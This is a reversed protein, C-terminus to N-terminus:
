LLLVSERQFVQKGFYVHERRSEGQALCHMCQLRSTAPLDEQVRISEAPQRSWRVRAEENQGGKVGVRQRWRGSMTASMAIKPRDYGLSKRNYTEYRSVNSTTCLVQVEWGKYRTSTTAYQSVPISRRVPSDIQSM